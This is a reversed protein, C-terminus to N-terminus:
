DKSYLENVMNNLLDENNENNYIIGYALKSIQDFENKNYNPIPIRKLYNASNNITPNINFIIENVINSNLLALLFYIDAKDKPFIGVISQDFVRNKMIAAKIKKNKLKSIAIGTKFYYSSNQFKAKKNEKYFSVAKTSWDIFWEDKKNKYSTQISGKILPIYSKNTEIGSIKNWDSDIEKNNILQYDKSNRVGENLVKIFKKNNGTYIGTVCDAM